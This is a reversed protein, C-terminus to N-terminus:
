ARQDVRAEQAGAHAGCGGVVRRFGRGRLRRVRESRRPFCARTRRRRPRSRTTGLPRSSAGASVV